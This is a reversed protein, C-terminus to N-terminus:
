SCGPHGCDCGIETVDQNGATECQPSCYEKDDGVMCVCASHGCKNNEDAM